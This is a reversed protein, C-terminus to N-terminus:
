LQPDPSPERTTDPRETQAAEMRSRQESVEQKLQTLESALRSSEASIEKLQTRLNRSHEELTKRLSIAALRLDEVEEASRPFWLLSLQSLIHDAAANAQTLHGVAPTARYTELHQVVAKLNTSIEELVQLPVFYPDVVSLRKQLRDVIALLRAKAEFAGPADDTAAGDIEEIKSKAQRIDEAIRHEIVREDWVSM